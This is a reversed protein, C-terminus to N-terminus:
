QQHLKLLLTSCSLLKLELLLLFACYLLPLFCNLSSKPLCSKRSEALLRPSNAKGGSYIIVFPSSFTLLFGKKLECHFQFSTPIFTSDGSPICFHLLFNLKLCQLTKVLRSTSIDRASTKFCLHICLVSTIHMFSDMSSEAEWRSITILQLERRVLLPCITILILLVVENSKAKLKSDDLTPSSSIAVCITKWGNQSSELSLVTYLLFHLFQQFNNWQLLSNGSNHERQQQSAPIRESETM